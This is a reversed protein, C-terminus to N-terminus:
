GTLSEGPEPFGMSRDMSAPYIPEPATAADLHILEDDNLVLEAALLNDEWQPLKSPGVITSTVGPQALVWALAVQAM